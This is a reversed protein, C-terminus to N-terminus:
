EIWFGQEIEQFTGIEGQSRELTLSQREPIPVKLKALRDKQGIASHDDRDRGLFSKQVLYRLEIGQAHVARLAFAPQVSTQAGLEAQCQGGTGAECAPLRM